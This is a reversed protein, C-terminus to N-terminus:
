VNAHVLRKVIISVKELLFSNNMKKNEVEFEKIKNDVDKLFQTSLEKM